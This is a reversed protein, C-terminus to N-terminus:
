RALEHRIRRTAAEAADCPRGHEAILDNAEGPGVLVILTGDDDGLEDGDVTLFRAGREDYLAPRVTLDAVDLVIVGALRAAAAKITAADIRPATTPANMGENDAPTAVGKLPLSM